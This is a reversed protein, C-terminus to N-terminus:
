PLSLLPSAAAGLSPVDGFLVDGLLLLSQANSLDFITAFIYSTPLSAIILSGHRFLTSLSEVLHVLHAPFILFSHHSFLDFSIGSSSLGQCLLSLVRIVYRRPKVRFQLKPPIFVM